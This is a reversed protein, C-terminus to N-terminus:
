INTGTAILLWVVFQGTLFDSATVPATLLNWIMTHNTCINHMLKTIQEFKAYLQMTTHTYMHTNWCYVCIMHINYCHTTTIHSRYLISSIDCLAEDCSSTSLMESTSRAIFSWVSSFTRIERGKEIYQSSIHM